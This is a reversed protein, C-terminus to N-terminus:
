ELYNKYKNSNEKEKQIRANLYEQEIKKRRISDKYVERNNTYVGDVIWKYLKELENMFLPCNDQQSFEIVRSRYLFNDLTENKDIVIRLKDTSIIPITVFLHAYEKVIHEPIFVKGASNYKDAIIVVHPIMKLDIDYLYNCPGINIQEEELPCDYSLYYGEGLFGDEIPETTIDKLYPNSSIYYAMIKGNFFPATPLVKVALGNLVLGDNIVNHIFKDVGASVLNLYSIDAYGNQFDLVSKYFLRTYKDIKDYNFGERLYSHEKTIFPHLSNLEYNKINKYKSYKLRDLKERALLEDINNIDVM